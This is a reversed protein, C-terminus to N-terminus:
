PMPNSAVWDDGLIVTLDVASNPDYSYLIRSNPVSMLRSLYSLTYPKDTHLTITTAQAYDSNGTSAVTLGQSTLYSSTTEALGGNMTGNLVAIKAGEAIALTKQDGANPVGETAMVIPAASVGTSTFMQDRLLRMQDPIVRLIYIGDPTTTPEAVTYDMNYTHLNAQPIQSVLFALQVAQDFTMNTQIGSSIEAYINDAKSLLIPLIDPNVFQKVITTIVEMQRSGRAIDGEGYDRTRAYALAYSGPLTYTGPEVWFKDGDGKWDLLMPETITVHVGGVEDVIKIFANFDVRAYYDIPVGLLSEVTDMALGAGGEPLKYDEGLKYAANIKEYDFGPINVWLDRRISMMGITQSLPDVTVLIMTDSLPSGQDAEIQRRESYDLGLLLINIRSKGDWTKAAPANSSQLPIGPQANANANNNNTGSSVPAGPLSTLSWGKVLNFVFKGGIIALIVGLVVFVVLLVRTTTDLSQRRRKPSQTMSQNNSYAMDEQDM